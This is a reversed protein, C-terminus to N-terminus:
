HLMNVLRVPMPLAKLNFKKMAKILTNPGAAYGIRWGTM